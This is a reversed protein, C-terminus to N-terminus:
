LNEVGYISKYGLFGWIHTKNLIRIIDFRVSLFVTDMYEVYGNYEVNHLGYYNKEM